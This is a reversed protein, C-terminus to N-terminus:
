PTGLALRAVIADSFQDGQEKSLGRAIATTRVVEAVRGLQEQSLPLSVKKEERKHHFLNGFAGKVAQSGKVEEVLAKLAEEVFSIIFPTMLIASAAEPGFGLREDRGTRSKLLKNADRFFAESTEQFIPLEDPVTQAIVDRAVDTVLQNWLVDAM